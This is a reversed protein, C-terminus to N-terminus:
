PHEQPAEPGAEPESEALGGEPATPPPPPHKRNRIREKHRSLQREIKDMLLDIAAHLDGHRERAVFPDAHETHVIIEAEHVGNRGDLIVEISQIRDYFRTLRSVKDQCYEKVSETVSMHRGSVTVQM